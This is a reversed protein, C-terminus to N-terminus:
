AQIRDQDPSLNFAPWEKFHEYIAYSYFGSSNRLMIFRKDINLPALKGELSPDWMRTFSIEVQEENEVVVRFSEGKIVYSTGTTGTSGEKSWVLDWYGRNSEDNLDELLNGIGNYQIGTVIGEPKSLTVQLIGNDM